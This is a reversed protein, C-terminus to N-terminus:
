WNEWQALLNELQGTLMNSSLPLAVIHTGQLYLSLPTSPTLFDM